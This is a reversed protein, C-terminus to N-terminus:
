ISLQSHKLRPRRMALWMVMLPPMQVVPKQLRSMPM